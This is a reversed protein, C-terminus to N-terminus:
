TRRCQIGGYIGAGHARTAIGVVIEHQSPKAPRMLREDIRRGSVRAFGSDHAAVFRQKEELL